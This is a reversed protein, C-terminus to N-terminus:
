FNAEQQINVIYENQALHYKSGIIDGTTCEALLMRIKRDKVMVIGAIKNQESLGIIGDVTYRNDLETDTTDVTGSKGRTIWMIFSGLNENVVATDKFIASSFGEGVFLGYQYDRPSIWGLQHVDKENAPPLPPIAAINLPAYENDVNKSTCAIGAALTAHVM